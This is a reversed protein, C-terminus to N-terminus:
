LFSRDFSRRMNFINIFRNLGGDRANDELVKAFRGRVHALFLCAANDFQGTHLRRQLVAAPLVDVQGTIIELVTLPHLGLSGFIGGLHLLSFM